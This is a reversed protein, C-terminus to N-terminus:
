RSQKHRNDYGERAQDTAEKIPMDPCKERLKLARKVICRYRRTEAVSLRRVAAALLDTSLYEGNAREESM